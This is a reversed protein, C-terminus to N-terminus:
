IFQPTLHDHIKSRTMSANLGEDRFMTRNFSQSFRQSLGYKATTYSAQSPKRLGYENAETVYLPNQEKPKHDYHSLIVKVQDKPITKSPETTPSESNFPKAFITDKRRKNMSASPEQRFAASLANDSYSCGEGFRDSERTMLFSLDRSPTDTNSKQLHEPPISAKDNLSHLALGYCENSTIMFPNIGKGSPGRVM